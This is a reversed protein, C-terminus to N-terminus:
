DCLKRNLKYIIYSTSTIFKATKSYIEPEHQKIWLIKPGIAQTTLRTGGFEVLSERSYKKELDEIQKVARTDVGYLIGPRLPRGKEDVPLVCAGIASVGVAAIEDGLPAKASLKKAIQKFDSWWVDDADHEAYGPKPISMEHDTRYEALITGDPKCLVGKSSYTGIDIGLLLRSM